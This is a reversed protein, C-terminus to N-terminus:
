DLEYAMRLLMHDPHSRLPICGEIYRIGLRDYFRRARANSETVWLTLRALPMSRAWNLTEGVLDAALPTGRVASDVWMSFLMAEDPTEEMVYTGVMGLWADDEVGVFTPSTASGAWDRWFAEDMNQAEALTSGFATPADELARLRSARLQQADDARM